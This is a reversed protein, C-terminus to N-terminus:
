TYSIFVDCKLKGGPRRAQMIFLEVDSWPKM